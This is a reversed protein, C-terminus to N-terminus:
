SVEMCIRCNMSKVQPDVEYHLNCMYGARMVYDCIEKIMNAVQVGSLEGKTIGDAIVDIMKRVDERRDLDIARGRKEWIYKSVAPQTIGLSHAIESQTLNKDVLSRALVGRIAPIVSKSAIEYPTQM